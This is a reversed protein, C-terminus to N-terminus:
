RQADEAREYRQRELALAHRREWAYRDTAMRNATPWDCKGYTLASLAEQASPPTPEYTGPHTRYTSM